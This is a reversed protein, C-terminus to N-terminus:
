LYIRIGAVIANKVPLSGYDSRARGASTQYILDIGAHNSLLYSAELQGFMSGGPVQWLVLAAASLRYILLDDRSIRAFVSQRNIPEQQDAAYARLYWLKGRLADSASPQTGVQFWREWDTASLGAPHRDYELILNVKSRGTCSIGTAVDAYLRTGAPSPLPSSTDAFVHTQAAYGMAEDILSRRRSLASELYVITGAGSGHTLNMGFSWQSGGRFLVLEPILDHGLDYSTSLSIRNLSNTRRFAPDGSPLTTNIPYPDYLRPAYILDLSGRTFLYQARTMLVGLRNSRLAGPDASIEDAVSQPRFFDTPNFAYAVGRRVNIRGLDLFWRREATDATWSLYAERLLYNFTREGAPAGSSQEYYEARGSYVFSLDGSPMSRGRGDLFVRNVWTPSVNGPVPVLQSSRNQAYGLQEGISVASTHTPIGEATAAEPEAAEPQTPAAPIRELEDEDDATQAGAHSAILLACGLRAIQWYWRNRTRSPM